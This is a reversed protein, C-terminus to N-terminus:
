THTKKVLILPWQIDVLIILVSDTESFTHKLTLTHAQIHTYIRSAQPAGLPEDRM